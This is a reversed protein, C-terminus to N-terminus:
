KTKISVKYSEKTIPDYIVLPDNLDYLQPQQYLESFKGVWLLRGTSISFVEVTADPKQTLHEIVGTSLGRQFPVIQLVGSSYSNIATVNATYWGGPLNPLVFTTDFNSTGVSPNITYVVNGTNDKIEIVLRTLDCNGSGSCILRPFNANVDAMAVYVMPGGGPMTLGSVINSESRIGTQSLGVAKFYYWSNASLSSADTNYISKAAFIGTQTFIRVSDDFNGTKSQLIYVTSTDGTSPTVTLQNLTLRGCNSTVSQSLTVAPAAIAPRSLTRFTQYVTDSGLSDRLVAYYSYLKNASLGTFTHSYFGSSPVQANAVTAITTGSSDKLYWKLQAAYTGLIVSVTAKATDIGPIISNLLVEGRILNPTRLSDARIFTDSAIPVNQDALFYVYFNTNVNPQPTAMFLTDSFNGTGSIVNTSDFSPGYYAFIRATYHDAGVVSVIVKSTGAAPQKTWTISPFAPKSLTQFTANGPLTDYVNGKKAILAFSYTTGYLLGYVSNIKIGTGSTATVSGNHWISDGSKKVILYLQYSGSFVSDIKTAIQVSDFGINSSLIPFHTGRMGFTTISIMIGIVLPLVKKKM